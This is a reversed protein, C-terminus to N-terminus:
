AGTIQMQNRWHLLQQRPSLGKFTLKSQVNDAKQSSKEQTPHEITFMGGQIVARATRTRLRVANRYERELLNMAVGRSVKCLVLNTTIERVQFEAYAIERDQWKGKSFIGPAQM